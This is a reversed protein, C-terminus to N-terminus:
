FKCEIINKDTIITDILFKVEIRVALLIDNITSYSFVIIFIM